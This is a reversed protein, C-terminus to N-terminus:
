HMKNGIKGRAGDTSQAVPNRHITLGNPKVYINRSCDLPNWAHIHARLKAKFSPCTSLLESYVVERSMRKFCQTRWVENNEDSIVRGWERCVLNSNRVDTLELFTFINELVNEPLASIHTQAAACSGQPHTPSEGNNEVPGSGGGGGGSTISSGSEQDSNYNETGSNDSLLGGNVGLQYHEQSTGLMRLTGNPIVANGIILDASAGDIELHALAALEPPTIPPVHVPPAPGPGPTVKQEEKGFLLKKVTHATKGAVANAIGGVNGALSKPNSSPGPGSGVGPNHGPSSSSNHGTAPSTANRWKTPSARQKAAAAGGESSSTKDKDHNHTSKGQEKNSHNQGQSTSM